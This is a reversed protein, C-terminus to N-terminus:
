SATWAAGLYEPSALERATRRKQRGEPMRAWIERAEEMGLAAMRLATFSLLRETRWGHSVSLAALLAALLRQRLKPDPFVAGFLFALADARRLSHPESAIIQLLREVEAEVAVGQRVAAGIPWSAVTVIRNPQDQEHAAKLALQIVGKAREKPLAEAVTTLAQCRYWPDAITKALRLAADADRAVLQQVHRRQEVSV